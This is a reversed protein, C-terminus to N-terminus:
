PQWACSLKQVHKPFLNTHRTPATELHSKFSSDKDLQQKVGLLDRRGVQATQDLYQSLIRTADNTVLELWYRQPHGRRKGKTYKVRDKYGPSFVVHHIPDSPPTSLTKVLLQLQQTVLQQSPLRPKGALNWVRQNTIRSYYSSKIGMSRRLFRHFWADITKLHRLELTVTDLGYLLVPIISALFIRVKVRWSLKSRWLQQLKSYAAVAKDKRAKIATKTPNDWSILSGLYKAATVVKVPANDVFTVRPQEEGVCLLETKDKNLILGYLSAEVQITRLFEQIQPPTVSILLTDDAYELDYIPKGVSWTNMPVGHGHLRTDVDHFLVTMVMIFLYPSLPCGQRIGTHPVDEVSDGTIGKTIFTQGSYLDRIVDVYQRHVGLRELAIFMSERDVKDFAMKWDLFLLYLASGTKLSFDQARRLIFLPDKTSKRARFGYQTARLQHDHSAALRKQILSAYLKYTTNLLSIPRYSSPEAEPGKGKYISVITAQKWEKPVTAQKLCNNFLELLLHENLYDLHQLLEGRVGDPGPAKDKKIQRIVAALEELTFPEPPTAPPPNLPPSQSLLQRDEQTVKTPGWQDNALFEAFVKHMESWPVPKGQRKLRTKRERFGRKLRKASRWLQTTSAKNDEVLSQRIWDRKAKRAKAKVAKYVSCATPDHVQRLVKAQHIAEALDPSIWPQKPARTQPTYTTHEAHKLSRVLQDYQSQVDGSNVSPPTSETPLTAPTLVIALGSRGGVTSGDRKAAGALEDAMENYKQGTHGKVWEWEVETHKRLAAYIKKANYVLEKHRKPRFEGRTMSAAWKSDYLVRLKAPPGQPRSLVYLMAEMIASLEGTNNSGVQAGLYFASRSDTQVPGRAEHVAEEDCTAVFGWGAPTDSSCKGRSGSGDTYVEMAEDTHTHEDATPKSGYSRRVEANFQSATYFNATYEYRPPRAPAVPKAGLKVKIQVKVLYHDSPFGFSHHAKITRITPLWKKACALKDLCQFRYPDISPAISGLYPLTDVGLFSRIESVVMLADDETLPTAQFKDWVQLLALPDSVVQDWSKPPACKDRYTIQHLLNPQKYSFVDVAGVASLFQTYLTRNSRERTNAFLPGKGYVHPGLIADEGKLRGQLRVNYDGLIYYPEPRPIGSIVETLKDWFPDKKNETDSKDHPAYIGILHVDGSRSALVVQIIRSTHQIVTKLHPIIRPALVATVGGWKDKQNGNVIFLHGESHFSYYSTAHTESLMLVDVSSERRLDLVAQHKLLERSSQVNQTGVKLTFGYDVPPTALPKRPPDRRCVFEPQRLVINRFLRARNAGKHKCRQVANM